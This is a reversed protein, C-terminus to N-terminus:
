YESWQNPPSAPEANTPLPIERDIKTWNDDLSVIDWTGERYRFIWVVGEVAIPRRFDGVWSVSEKTKSTESWVFNTPGIALFKSANLMVIKNPTNEISLHNKTKTLLGYTAVSRPSFHDRYKPATTACLFAQDASLHLGEYNGSFSALNVFGENSKWRYFITTSGDKRPVVDTFFVCQYKNSWFIEGRIYSKVEQQWKKSGNVITVKSENGYGQNLIGFPSTKGDAIMMEEIRPKGREKIKIPAVLKGGNLRWGHEVPLYFISVPFLACYICVAVLAGGGVWIWAKNM